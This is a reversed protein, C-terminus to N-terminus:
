AVLYAWAYREVIQISYIRHNVINASQTGPPLIRSQGSEHVSNL